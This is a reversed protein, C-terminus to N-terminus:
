PLPGCLLNVVPGFYSRFLRRLQRGRKNIMTVRRDIRAPRVSLLATSVQKLEHHSLNFKNTAQNPIAFLLSPNMLVRGNSSIGTPSM